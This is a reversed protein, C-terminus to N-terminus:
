VPQGSCLPCPNCPGCPACAVACPNCPNCPGCPNCPNAAACPNCPNCPACPNCPNCAAALRPVVCDSSAASGAACPNCPNCAGCPGCAGACPNCPNCATARAVPVAPARARIVLTAPIVPVAHDAPARARGARIARDALTARLSSSCGRTRISRPRRRPKAPLHAPWPTAAAPPSPLGSSWLSWREPSCPNRAHCTPGGEIDTNPVFQRGACPAPCVGEM